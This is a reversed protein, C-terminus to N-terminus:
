ASKRGFSGQSRRPLAQVSQGGQGVWVQDQCRDIGCSVLVASAAQAVQVGHPIMPGDVGPITIEGLYLFQDGGGMSVPATYQKVHDQGGRRHIM